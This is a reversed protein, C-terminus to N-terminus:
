NDNKNVRRIVTLELGGKYNNVLAFFPYGLVAFLIFIVPSLLLAIALDSLTNELEGGPLFYVVLGIIVSLIGVGLGFIAFIKLISPFSLQVRNVQKM